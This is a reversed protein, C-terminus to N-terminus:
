RDVLAHLLAEIQKQMDDPAAAAATGRVAQAPEAQEPRLVRPDLEALALCAAEHAAALSDKINKPGSACGAVYIGQRSSTVGTGDVAFYGDEALDIEITRALDGIADPPEVDSCLVVLDYSERVFRHQSFDEYSVGIADGKEPDVKFMAGWRVRVGTKDALDRVEVDRDGEAPQSLVLVAVTGVDQALLQRVQSSVIYLSFTSPDDLVLLVSEPYEEDSPKSAYGGTPGPFELLRQLEASTVVDAHAGYGFEGLAAADGTQLGTALIVAGVHRDHVSDLPLDFHIADDDCVDVCRQCPLYNPPANLCSETDIVYAEPLTKPLPTYIAKRYTLGADFENAAVVPCVAHCLKCRTCADTVFRARERISVSFNGSRGEISELNAMTIIEIREHDALTDLLPPQVGEAREGIASPETMAAALRGGVVPSREVIIARAGADACDMAAHIGAIGGGVILITDTM